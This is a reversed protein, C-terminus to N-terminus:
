VALIYSPIAYHPFPSMSANIQCINSHWNYPPVLSSVPSLSIHLVPIDRSKPVLM